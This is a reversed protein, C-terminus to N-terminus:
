SRRTSRDLPRPLYGDAWSSDGWLFETMDPFEKRLVRSTGEKFIQVAEAVSIRPPLQVVIHLHVEQIAMDSIWWKNM